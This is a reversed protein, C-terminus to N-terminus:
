QAKEKKKADTYAQAFEKTCGKPLRGMGEAYKIWRGVEEYERWNGDLKLAALNEDYYDKPKPQEPEPKGDKDRAPTWQQNFEADIEEQTPEAEPLDEGAYINLGLGFMALNKTLCRMVTKNIDTMTPTLMAKNKFDMVPLWMEHTKEGNTAETYVMYGINPNGFEPTGHENKFVKYSADPCAIKFNKWAHAWSLYTLNGKKEQFEKTEISYIEEFSKM